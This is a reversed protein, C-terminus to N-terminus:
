PQIGTEFNLTSLALRYQYQANVNGIAADAQQLQAQSLEVISGLGLQYRSQALNLSLDAQKALEETVGVRQFATNAALWATRVDRVIRDRLDRTNEAAAQARYNAESAQASLLFGNFIPISMNVGIAGYWSSVFYNPFCGGFCDPRVPSAGAIGLASITPLLQDRQARRFKEAAQADYNYALLDPRQQMATRILGDVDTPPAPPEADEDGLEFAVQRDFGLVAALAAITSDVNNQADLQLLKAQSLNVEAFSLDLNSKLKNKALEDIQHEVSQRTAVTQQAVKLLAQAQLANYFAQDTALVIDEVTALANANQAKDRLKAASVLNTTRGFDTLLQSLTVGMGAHELLRPANLAGAGVRSGENADVATIAGNFNPLEAARAERYIQHQALALLRGINIRPNNKLALQEAQRRTLRMVGTPAPMGQTQKAASAPDNQRPSSEALAVQGGPAVNRFTPAQPQPASPLGDSSRAREPTQSLVTGSILPLVCILLAKRWRHNRGSMLNVKENMPAGHAPVTAIQQDRKGYVLLYAAPVIFLTLVVSSTLGGIIARALPAYQESGTGLKLAMPVMGIITALSTMLIPRLRVRCSTIVADKVSSGQDELRHAFEVILISNSASIGVLMLVGMLSMVNLTTGTLPLIVLVGIFGMPIALMILLPDKFSRFQAVLILYLLIVSLSLGTAFSRFSANMGQVMGRLDVRVNEPLKAESVTRQVAGAIKGLGEGAPTVYIDTVRQIQYHDVETPTQVNQIKVVAGLTTPQKLNPARLPINSLDALDHIAARGNEFYQVTLFYDNGSKRDLWYNPAIMLNSNLATIVNDIVQKQTLGLEAAHM